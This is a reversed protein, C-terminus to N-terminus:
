FLDFIRSYDRSNMSHCGTCSSGKNSVSFAVNLDPRIESWLWNAGTSASASDKKMIAYLAISGSPSDYLEKVILSGNKFSSGVPLKGTSDLASQAVGNFKVRMYANHASQSSSPTIGPTNIYYTFGTTATAEDFLQKDLGTAEEEKSCQTLFFLSIIFGSLVLRTKM